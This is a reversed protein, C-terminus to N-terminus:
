QECKRLPLGASYSNLFNSRPSLVSARFLRAAARLPSSSSSPRLLEVLSRRLSSSPQPLSDTQPACLLLAVLRPFLPISTDLATSRSQALVRCASSALAPCAPALPDSFCRAACRLRTATASLVASPRPAPFTAKWVRPAPQNPLRTCTLFWSETTQQRPNLFPWSWSPLTLHQHRFPPPSLRPSPNNNKPTPPPPYLLICPGTYM